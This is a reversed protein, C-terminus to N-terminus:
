SSAVSVSDGPQTLTCTRAHNQAPADVAEATRIHSLRRPNRTV